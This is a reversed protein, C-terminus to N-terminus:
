RLIYYEHVTSMYPIKCVSGVKLELVSAEIKTHLVTLTATLWAGSQEMTQLM